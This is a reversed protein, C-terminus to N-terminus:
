LQATAGNTLSATVELVESSSSFDFRLGIYAARVSRYYFMGMHLRTQIGGGYGQSDCSAVFLSGLVQLYLRAV